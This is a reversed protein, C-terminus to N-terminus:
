QVIVRGSFLSKQSPLHIIEVDVASGRGFGFKEREEATTIEFGLVMGTGASGGTSMVDGSAFTYEGFNTEADGPKGCAVDNLYPVKVSAVEEGHIIMGKVGATSSTVEGRQMTKQTSAPPTYYSLIRLDSTPISSGGHHEILMVYQDRHDGGDSIMKVDIAASPTTETNGFADGAFASVFAAIIITVVLMLMVGIVPSVADYTESSM